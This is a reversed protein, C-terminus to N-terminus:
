RCAFSSFSRAMAIQSISFEVAVDAHVHCDSPGRLTIGALNGEFVAGVGQAVLTQAGAIRATLTSITCCPPWTVARHMVVRRETVARTPVARGRVDEPLGVLFAYKSSM